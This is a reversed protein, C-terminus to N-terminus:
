KSNSVSARRRAKISRSLRQMEREYRPSEEKLYRSWLLPNSLCADALDFGTLSDWDIVPERGTYKIRFLDLQSM